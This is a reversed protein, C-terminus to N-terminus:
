HEAAGPDGIAEPADKSAKPLDLDKVNEKIASEVEWRM